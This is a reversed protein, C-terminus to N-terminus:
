IERETNYKEVDDMNNVSNFLNTYERNPSKTNKMGGLYPKIGLISKKDGIPTM